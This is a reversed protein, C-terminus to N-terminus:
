SNSLLSDLQNLRTDWLKEYESLHDQAFQLTDMKLTIIQQRGEKSKTVLQARELVAVHKSVAAFSMDYAVVLDKIPLSKVSVRHLIDRRTSDALAHFISDTNYKVM